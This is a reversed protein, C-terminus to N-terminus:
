KNIINVLSDAKYIRILETKGQPNYTIDSGEKKNNLYSVEEELQGNDYYTKQKGTGNVFVGQGVIRGTNDYYLWFGDYNGNKFTGEIKKTGDPYWETYEGDLVGDKYTGRSAPKGGRDWTEIPGDQKNKKYHSVEQRIGTNYWRTMISDLLNDKYFCELQMKGNEYWFTAKGEYSGRRVHIESRKAGGPWFEKKTRTCACLFVLAISILFFLRRNM